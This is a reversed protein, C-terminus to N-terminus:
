DITQGGVARLLLGRYIANPMGLAKLDTSHLMFPPHNYCYGAGPPLGQDNTHLINNANM